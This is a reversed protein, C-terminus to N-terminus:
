GAMKELVYKLADVPRTIKKGNKLTVGRDECGRTLRKLAASQERTLGKLDVRRAAYCDKKIEGMPVQVDVLESTPAPSETDKAEAKPEPSQSEVKPETEPTKAEEQKSEPVSPLNPKNTKKKAM